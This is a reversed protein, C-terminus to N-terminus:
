RARRRSSAATSAIHSSLSRMRKREGVPLQQKPAPFRSRFDSGGKGRRCAAPSAAHTATDVLALMEGLGIQYAILTAQWKALCARGDATLSFMRRPPGPEHMDWSAALLGEDEMAKLTRYVGAVDPADAAFFRLSALRQVIAYGHRPRDHLVALLAARLLRPLSKGSCACTDDLMM